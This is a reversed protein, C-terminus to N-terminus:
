VTSRKASLVDMVPVDHHAQRDPSANPSNEDHPEQATPTPSGSVRRKTPPVRSWQIIGKGAVIRSAGRHQRHHPQRRDEGSNNMDQDEAHFAEPPGRRLYTRSKALGGFLRVRGFQEREILAEVIQKRAMPVNAPSASIRNPCVSEPSVSTLQFQRNMTPAAITKAADAGRNCRPASM